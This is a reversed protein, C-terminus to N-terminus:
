PLSGIFWWCMGCAPLRVAVLQGTQLSALGQQVWSVYFYISNALLLFESADTIGGAGDSV